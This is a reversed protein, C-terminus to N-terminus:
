GIALSTQAYIKERQDPPAISGRAMRRNARVREFGYRSLLEVADQNTEPVVVSVPGDYPLSLAAQLLRESDGPYQVVWPGIRNKQAFLYGCVRSAEDRLMFSREPFRTLLSVLVKRREAGFFNSDWKALEDLDSDSIPRVDSARNYSPMNEGRQFVYTQDYAVFGLKKYLAEGAQSADLLVFPSGLNDVWKLLHRMLALGIGLRQANPHVAMLGVYCFAGYNTTGVMGVPTKAQLALFWGDPQIERYFRLDQIRSELGGFAAKLIRDASELDADCLLRITVPM